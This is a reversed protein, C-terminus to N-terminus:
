GPAALGEELEEARRLVAALGRDPMGSEDLHAVTARLYDLARGAAGHGQLVLEVIADDTWYGCYQPHNRRVVFTLAPLAAGDSDRRVSVIAPAYARTVMERRWLYALTEEARDPAVRLAFGRCSGGRDLGLVVGPNGPVGRYRYSLLCLRRHRGRLRAPAREAFAFGPNWILSGYAFVWFGAGHPWDFLAREFPAPDDVPPPPPPSLTM